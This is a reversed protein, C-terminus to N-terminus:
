RSTKKPPIENWYDHQGPYAAVDPMHRLIARRM